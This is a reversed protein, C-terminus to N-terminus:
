LDQRPRTVIARKFERLIRSLFSDRHLLFCNPLANFHYGEAGFFFFFNFFSYDSIYLFGLIEEKNEKINGPLLPLHECTLHKKM